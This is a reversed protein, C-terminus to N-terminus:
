MCSKGIQIAKKIEKAIQRQKTLCVESLASLCWTIVLIFLICTSVAVVVWLLHWLVHSFSMEQFKWKLVSIDRSGCWYQVQSKAHINMRSCEWPIRLWIWKRYLHLLHAHWGRKFILKIGQKPPEGSLVPPKSYSRINYRHLVFGLNSVLWTLLRPSQPRSIIVQICITVALESTVTRPLIM